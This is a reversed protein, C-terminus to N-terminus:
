TEGLAIPQVDNVTDWLGLAPIGKMLVGADLSIIESVTSSHSVATQKKQMDVFNACFHSKRIHM